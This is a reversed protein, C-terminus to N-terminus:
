GTKVRLFAFPIANCSSCECLLRLVHGRKPRVPKDPQDCKAEAVFSTGPMELCPSQLWALLSAGTVSPDDKEIVHRKGLRPPPDDSAFGFTITFLRRGLVAAAHLLWLLAIHICVIVCVERRIM